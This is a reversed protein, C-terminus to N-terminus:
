FLPKFASIWDGIASQERIIAAAVVRPSDAPHKYAYVNDEEMMSSAQTRVTEYTKSEFLAEEFLKQNKAARSNQGLLVDAPLTTADSEVDAMTEKKQWFYVLFLITHGLTSVRSDKMCVDIVTVIKKQIKPCM